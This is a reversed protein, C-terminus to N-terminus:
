QHGMICTVPILTNNSKLFLLIIAQCFASGTEQM